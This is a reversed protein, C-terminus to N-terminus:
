IGDESRILAGLDGDVKSALKDISAKTENLAGVIAAGDSSLAGSRPIIGPGNPQNTTAIFTRSYNQGPRAWGPIGDRNGVGGQGGGGSGSGSTRDGVENAAADFYFSGDPCVWGQLAAGTIPDPVSSRRCVADLEEESRSPGAAGFAPPILPGAFGTGGGGGAGGGGGGSSITIAGSGSGGPGGVIPAALAAKAANAGDLGATLDALAGTIGNIGAILRDFAM